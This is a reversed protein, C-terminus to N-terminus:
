ILTCTILAHFLRKTPSTRFGSLFCNVFVLILYLTFASLGKNFDPKDPFAFINKIFCIFYVQFVSISFTFSSINLIEDIFSYEIKIIEAQPTRNEQVLVLLTIFPSFSKILILNYSQMKKESLKNYKFYPYCNLSM